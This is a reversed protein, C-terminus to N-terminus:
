PMFSRVALYEFRSPRLAHWGAATASRARRLKSRETFRDPLQAQLSPEALLLQGLLGPGVEALDTPDLAAHAVGAVRCQDAEGHSQPGRDGRNRGLGAFDLVSQDVRNM